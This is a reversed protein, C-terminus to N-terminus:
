HSIGPRPIMGIKILGAFVPISAVSIEAADEFSHGHSTIWDNFSMGCAAEPYLHRIVEKGSNRQRSKLGAIKGIVKWEAPTKDTHTVCSRFNNDRVAPVGGGEYNKKNAEKSNQIQFGRDMHPLLYETDSFSKLERIEEECRIFYKRVQRGTPTNEIMALEKAMDTTIHYENLSNGGRPNNMIKRVLYDVGDEFEYKKIRGKIWDAFQQKSDLRIWLDRANVTRKIKGDFEADAIKVIDQEM